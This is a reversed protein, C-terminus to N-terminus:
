IILFFISLLGLFLPFSHIIIIFRALEIKNYCNFWNDFNKISKKLREQDHIRRDENEIKKLIEVIKNFNSKIERHYQEIVSERNPYIPVGYQNLLECIGNELKKRDSEGAEFYEDVLTDL